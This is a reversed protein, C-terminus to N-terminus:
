RGYILIEELVDIHTALMHHQAELEVIMKKTLASRQSKPTECCVKHARRIRELERRLYTMAKKARAGAM